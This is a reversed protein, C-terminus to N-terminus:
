ERREARAKVAFSGDPMFDAEGSLSYGKGDSDIMEVKFPQNPLSVVTPSASMEVGEAESASKFTNFVDDGSWAEAHQLTNRANTALTGLGSEEVFADDVVMSRAEILIQDTGPSRGTQDIGKPTIFTLEYRGDALQYGGTVLSEGQAVVANVAASLVDNENLPRALMALETQTRELEDRLEAVESRKSVKRRLPIAQEDIRRAMPSNSEEQASAGSETQRGARDGLDKLLFLLACITLVGAVLVYVNRTM